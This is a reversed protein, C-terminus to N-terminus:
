GITFEARVQVLTISDVFADILEPTLTGVNGILDQFAGSELGARLASRLEIMEATVSVTGRRPTTAETTTGVAVWYDDVNAVVAVPLTSSVLPQKADTRFRTLSLSVTDATSLAESTIAFDYAIRSPDSDDAVLYLTGIPTLQMMDEPGFAATASQDDISASVEAVTKTTDPRIPQPKSKAGAGLVRDIVVQAETAGVVRDVIRGKPDVLLHTPFASPNEDDLLFMWAARWLASATSAEAHLVTSTPAVSAKWNVADQRGAPVGETIGETLLSTFALEVGHEDRLKQQATEVEEAFFRCPACWGACVDILTYTGGRATTITDRINRRVGDQDEAEVSALQEGPLFGSPRVVLTTTTEVADVTARLGVFGGDPGATATVTLRGDDGTQGSQASIVVTANSVPDEMVELTVTAGAVPEGLEDVVTLGVPEGFPANPAALYVSADFSAAAAAGVATAPSAPALVGLLLGLVSAWAFGSPTRKRHETRRAASHATQNMTTAHALM